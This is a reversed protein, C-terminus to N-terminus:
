ASKQVIGCAIGYLVFTKNHTFFNDTLFFYPVYRPKNDYDTLVKLKTSM